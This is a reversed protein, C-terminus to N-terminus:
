NAGKTQEYFPKGVTKIHTKLEEHKLSEYHIIDFYYYNGIARSGFILVKEIEKWRSIAKIIMNYSKEPIGYNM